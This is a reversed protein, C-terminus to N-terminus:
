HQLAWLGLLGLSAIGAYCIVIVSLAIAAMRIHRPDHLRRYLIFCLGAAILAKIIGFQWHAAFYKIVPNGEHFLGSSLLYATIVGDAIQLTALIVAFIIFRHRWDSARIDLAPSGRAEVSDMTNM